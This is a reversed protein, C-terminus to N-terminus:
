QGTELRMLPSLDADLSFIAMDGPPTPAAVAGVGGVTLGTALAMAVAGLRLQSVLRDGRLADVRRWVLPELGDLPRTPSAAASRALLDELDHTM